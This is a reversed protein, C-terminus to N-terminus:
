CNYYITLQEITLSLSLKLHFIFSMSYDLVISLCLMSCSNQPEHDREIYIEMLLLFCEFVKVFKAQLPKKGTNDM